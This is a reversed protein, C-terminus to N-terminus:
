LVFILASVLTLFWMIIHGAAQENMFGAQPFVNDACAAYKEDITQDILADGEM